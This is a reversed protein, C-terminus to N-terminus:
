PSASPPPAGTGDWHFNGPRYRHQDIFTRLAPADCSDPHLLAGSFTSSTEYSAYMGNTDEDKVQLWVADGAALHLVVLHSTTGLARADTQKVVPYFNLFLGVKLTKEYVTLHYSFLYTGNIPAVYVGLDPLYHNQRNYLVHGFVVPLNPPPFSSM